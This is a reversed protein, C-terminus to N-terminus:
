QRGDRVGMLWDYYHQEWGGYDSVHIAFKDYRNGPYPYEQFWVQCWCEQFIHDMLLHHLMAEPRVRYGCM